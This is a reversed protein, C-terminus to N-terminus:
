KVFHYGRYLNYAKQFQRRLAYWGAINLKSPEVPVCYRLKEMAKEFLDKEVTGNRNLSFLQLIGATFFKISPSVFFQHLPHLYIRNIDRSVVYSYEINVLFQYMFNAFSLLLGNLSQWKVHIISSLLSKYYCRAINNIYDPFDELELTTTSLYNRIFFTLVIGLYDRTSFWLDVVKKDIKAFDPKLKFATCSIVKDPLDPLVKALEPFDTFYFQKFIKARDAYRPEYRDALICLVTCMEIFAKYCEFVILEKQEESLQEIILNDGNSDFQPFLALLGAVKEFLIRLGSSLPIKQKNCPISNRIEEGYLLKSAVKLDYFWIDSYKLDKKRLFKIDVVFNSFRFSMLESNTLNLSRYIQDYLKQVVSEKPIKNAIVVIDFDRLCIINGNNAKKISGEGKGFGGTLLISRVYPVNELIIKTILRLKAAIQADISASNYSTFIGL